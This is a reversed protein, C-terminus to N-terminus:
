TSYRQASNSLVFTCIYIRNSNITWQRILPRVLTNGYLNTLNFFMMWRVLHTLFESLQDPQIWVLEGLRVTTYPESNHIYKLYLCFHVGVCWSHHFSSGNPFHCIKFWKFAENPPWRTTHTGPCNCQSVQELAPVSQISNAEYGDKM